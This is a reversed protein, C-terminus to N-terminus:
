LFDEVSDMLVKMNNEALYDFVTDFDGNIGTQDLKNALVGNEDPINNLLILKRNQEFREKLEIADMGSSKKINAWVKGEDYATWFDDDFELTYPNWYEEAESKRIKTFSPARGTTENMYHNKKCYMPPIGDGNDGKIIHMMIHDDLNDASVLVNKLPHWQDINAWKKLQYFDKDSSVILNKENSNISFSAILDDAEYGPETIVKIPFNIKIDSKIEQLLEFLFSWDIDTQEDRNKKRNGKYHPFYDRRWSTKADCCVVLDGYEKFSSNYKRIINLVIHKIMGKSDENIGTRQSETLIVAYCVQSFDLLIM